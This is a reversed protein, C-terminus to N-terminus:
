LCHLVACDSGSAQPTHSLGLNGPTLRSWEHRWRADPIRAGRRRKVDAALSSREEPACRAPGSSPGRGARADAERNRFITDSWYTFASYAEDFRGLDRLAIAQGLRCAEEHRSRAFVLKNQTGLWARLRDVEYDSNDAAAGFLNYATESDREEFAEVASLIAFPPISGSAESRTTNVVFENVPWHAMDCGLQYLMTEHPGEPFSGTGKGLPSQQLFGVAAAFNGPMGYAAGRLYAGSIAAANPFRARLQDMIPAVSRNDLPRRIFESAAFALVELSNGYRAVLARLAARGADVQGAALQDFVGDLERVVDAM